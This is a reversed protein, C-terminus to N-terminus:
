YYQRIFGYARDFLERHSGELHSRPGLPRWADRQPPRQVARDREELPHM